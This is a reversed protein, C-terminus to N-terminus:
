QLAEPLPMGEANDDELVLELAEGIGYCLPPGSTRPM